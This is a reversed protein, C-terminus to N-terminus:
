PALWEDYPISTIPQDNSPSTATNASEQVNTSENAVPTEPTNRKPRNKIANCVYEDIFPQRCSPCPTGPGRYSALYDAFCAKHFVHPCSETCSWVVFDGEQYPELCIACSDHVYQRYTHLPLSTTPLNQLHSNDMTCSMIEDEQAEPSSSSSSSLSEHTLGQPEESGDSGGIGNEEHEQLPSQYFDSDPGIPARTKDLVLIVSNDDDHDEMTSTTPDGLQNHNEAIEKDYESAVGKEIDEFCDDDNVHLIHEAKVEQWSALTFSTLHPVPKQGNPVFRENGSVM